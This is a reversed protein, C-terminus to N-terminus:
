TFLNKLTDYFNKVSADTDILNEVDIKKRLNELRTKDKAIEVAAKTYDEPNKFILEDLGSKKLMDAGLRGSHLRGCLNVVPVNMYLALATMMGGPYPFTDLILDIEAYDEFFNDEGRRVEIKGPPLGFKELRQLFNKRRSELPTTDRFIIKSDPIENLIKRVCNLYEETVKMFNNLSGFVFNEHPIRRLIKKARIMKPNPNFTFLNEVPLIKECFYEGAFESLFKDSFYFDIGPCGVSDFWGVASIQIKAPRYAAIQLATGGETHGGLDILVDVKERRIKLAAEEFNMEEIVFFGDVNRRIKQTFIDEEKSLSWATVKFRERDFDTLFHEYFRAASSDCFHPAIFACHIKADTKFDPPPLIEADRYLGSYIKTENKLFDEDINPLWHLAFLYNSFHERQSRLIKDDIAANFYAKAAGEPDCLDHFAAGILEHFKWIESEGAAPLFEKLIELAKEPQGSKLLKKANELVEAM